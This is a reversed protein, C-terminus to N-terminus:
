KPGTRIDSSLRILDAIKRNVENGLDRWKSLSFNCKASAKGFLELGKDIKCVDNDFLIYRAHALKKFPRDEIAVLEYKEIPFDKVIKEIGTLFFDAQHKPASSLIQLHPVGSDMTLLKLFYRLSNNRNILVNTFLYRDCIVVKQSFRALVRFYKEWIDAVKEGVFIEKDRHKKIELLNESIDFTAFSCLDIGQEEKLRLGVQQNINQSCILKIFQFEENETLSGEINKWGQHSNISIIRKNKLISIFAKSWKQKANQSEMNQLLTLIEKRYDECPLLLLGLEEVCEANRFHQSENVQSLQAETAILDFPVFTM